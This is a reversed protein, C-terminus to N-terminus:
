QNFNRCNELLHCHSNKIECVLTIGAECLLPLTLMPQPQPQRSTCPSSPSPSAAVMTAERLMGVVSGLINHTVWALCSTQMLPRLDQESGWRAILETYPVAVTGQGSLRARLLSESVVQYPEGMMLLGGQSSGFVMDHRSGESHVQSFTLVVVVGRHLWSIIYSCLNGSNLLQQSLIPFFRARLQGCSVVRLARAIDPGTLIRSSHSMSSPTTPNTHSGRYHLYSVLTQPVPMPPNLENIVTVVSERSVTHGMASMTYFIANTASTLPTTFPHTLESAHSQSWLMVDGRSIIPVMAPREQEQPRSPPPREFPQPSTPLQQAIPHVLPPPPTPEPEPAPPRAVEEGGWDSSSPDFDMELYDMEPSSSRRRENNEAHNPVNDNAIPHGPVDDEGRYRYFCEENSSSSQQDWSCSPSHSNQNEFEGEGSDPSCRGPLVEFLLDEGGVAGDEEYDEIEVDEMDSNQGASHRGTGNVHELAVGGCHDCEGNLGCFDSSGQLDRPLVHFQESDINEANPERTENNPCDTSSDTALDCYGNVALDSPRRVHSSNSRDIELTQSSSTEGHSEPTRSSSPQPQDLLRDPRLERSGESPRSLQDTDSHNDSSALRDNAMDDDEDISSREINNNNSSTPEVLGNIVISEANSPKTKPKAGLHSASDSENM